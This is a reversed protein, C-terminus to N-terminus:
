DSSRLPFQRGPPGPSGGGSSGGAKGIGGSSRTLSSWGSCHRWDLFPSLLVLVARTAPDLRRPKAHREQYLALQKRLFSNEAALQVRPTLGLRVLTVLDHLL